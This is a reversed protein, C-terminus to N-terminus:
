RRKKFLSEIKRRLKKRKKNRGVDQVRLHYDGRAIRARWKRSSDEGPAKRHLSKGSEVPDHAALCVIVRLEDVKGIRCAGNALDDDFDSEFGTVEFGGDSFISTVEAVQEDTIPVVPVPPVDPGDAVAADASEDVAAGADDALAVLAGGADSTQPAGQGRDVL